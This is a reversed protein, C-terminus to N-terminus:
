CFIFQCLLILIKRTLYLHIISKQYAHDLVANDTILNNIKSISSRFPINNKFTLKEDDDDDDDDDNEGEVTITGKVVIYADSSDCLESRLMSTEFSLTKKVSYQGSSLDNVEVLKLHIM